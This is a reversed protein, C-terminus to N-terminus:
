EFIPMLLPKEIFEDFGSLEDIAANLTAEHCKQTTLVIAVHQPNTPPKQLISEISVEHRALTDSIKAIVGPKDQVNFRVYFKSVLSRKPAYEFRGRGLNPGHFVPRTDGYVLDMIDAAVASATPGSGAGSGIFTLTGVPEAEILIANTAGDLQALPNSLAVLSPRVSQALKNDLLQASAILKVAFGLFQASELDITEITEIGQLEIEAFNPVGDFAIASLLVLKHGADGGNIDLTPDAEALGLRQADSLVAAFDRKTKAMETLIYNSTGNMVGMIKRIRNASLGERLSKIIPIGGAVAAEYRIEVGNQTALGALELGHDALMAKNATVVHKKNKLATTVAHYAPGDAGGMLEVIVDASELRALESPDDFWPINSIDVSRARNKNRASVGVIEVCKGIEKNGLLIELLGGGVTGLGLIGLKLPKM